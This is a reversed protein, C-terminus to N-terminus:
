MIFCVLQTNYSILYATNCSHERRYCNCVICWTDWIFPHKPQWLFYHIPDDTFPCCSASFRLVSLAIALHFFILFVFYSIFYVLCFLFFIQAVRVECFWHHSWTNRFTFQEQEVLPVPWTVRTFSRTKLWSHPFSSMTIVFLHCM